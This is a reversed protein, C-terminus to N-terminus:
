PEKFARWSTIINNSSILIVSSKWTLGIAKFAYKPWISVFVEYQTMELFKYGPTFSIM